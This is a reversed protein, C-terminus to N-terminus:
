DGKPAHFAAVKRALVAVGRTFWIEEVERAAERPTDEFGAHSFGTHGIMANMTWYWRHGQPGGAMKYIRGVGQEEAFASFDDPRDDWTRKWRLKLEIESM